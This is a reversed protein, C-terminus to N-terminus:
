LSAHRTNIKLYNYVTSLGIKYKRALDKYKMNNQRDQILEKVQLENLKPKCEGKGKHTKGINNKGLWKGQHTKNCFYKGSTSRINSIQQTTIKGCYTCIKESTHAEHYCKHCLGEHNHREKM